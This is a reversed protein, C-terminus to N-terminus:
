WKGWKRFVLLSATVAAGLTTLATEIDISLVGQQIDYAVGWEALWAASLALIGSLVYFIVRIITAAM